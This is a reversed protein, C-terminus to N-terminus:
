IVMELSGFDKYDKLSILKYLTGRDDKRYLTGGIVLTESLHDSTNNSPNFRRVSSTILGTIVDTTVITTIAGGITQEQKKEAVEKMIATILLSDVSGDDVSKSEFELKGLTITPLSDRNIGKPGFALYEGWKTDTVILSSPPYIEISFIHSDSPEPYRKEVMSNFLANKMNMSNHNPEAKSFQMIKEYIDKKDLLKKEQRNLGGFIFCVNAKANKTKWYEDVLPNIIEEIEARLERINLKVAKSKLLKKIIFSAMDASGAVALAVDNSIIELKLLNDKFSIIEGLSNKDTLRTDASIYVRDCLNIGFILSM